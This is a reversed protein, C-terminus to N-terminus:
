EVKEYRLFEYAIDFYTLEDSEATLKWEPNQDLNSFYKDAAYAHDLKTVHAVKCYPLLQAFVKEGGIIYIDEDPYKQLEELLAELSYVVTAGKVQLNKNESLIINTRGQVAMGQYKSELTKRGMVIVKGATEEMFLKQERPIRILLEKGKGIAWNSDATVYLNM